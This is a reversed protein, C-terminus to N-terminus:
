LMFFSTLIQDSLLWRVHKRGMASIEKGTRTLGTFVFCFLGRSTPLWQSLIFACPFSQLIQLAYMKETFGVRGVRIRKVGSKSIQINEKRARESMRKLKIVSQYLSATDSKILFKNFVLCYVICAHSM